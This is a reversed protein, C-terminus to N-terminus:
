LVAKNIKQCKPSDSGNEAAVKNNVKNVKPRKSLRRKKSLREYVTNCQVDSHKSYHLHINPPNLAITYM